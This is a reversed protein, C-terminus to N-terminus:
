SSRWPNGRLEEDLWDSSRTAKSKQSERHALFELFVRPGFGIRYDLKLLNWLSEPHRPISSQRSPSAWAGPANCLTKRCSRTASTDCADVIQECWIEYIVDVRVVPTQTSWDEVFGDMNIALSFPWHRPLGGSLPVAVKEGAKWWPFERGQGNRAHGQKAASVFGSSATSSYQLYRAAARWVWSIWSSIWRTAQSFSPHSCASWASRSWAVLHRSVKTKVWYVASAQDALPKGCLTRRATFIRFDQPARTPM